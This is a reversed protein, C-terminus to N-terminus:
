QLPNEKVYIIWDKPIANALMDVALLQDVFVGGSTTTTQEPQNHLTIYIYKKSYDPIIQYKEYEEKFSRKLKDWRKEQLKISFVSRKFPEISPMSRKWFLMEVYLYATKLLTGQKINRLIAKKTPLVKHLRSVRDEMYEARFFFPSRDTSKQRLYYDKIDPSLDAITYQNGKEMEKKLDHHDGIDDMLWIRGAIQMNKINLCKIGLRRAITYAVYKFAAHPIDSFLVVDPKLRTLVGYWYKVYTNYLHMKQMIPVQTRDINEMMVLARVECESLAELFKPEVPSFDADDMAPIGAVADELNHFITKPFLSRDIEFFDRKHGTWYLVDISCNKLEKVLEIYMKSHFDFIIASKMTHSISVICYLIVAMEHTFDEKSENIFLIHYPFLYVIVFIKPRFIVWWSVPAASIAPVRIMAIESSRSFRILCERLM